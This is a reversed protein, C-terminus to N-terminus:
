PQFVVDAPSAIVLRGTAGDIRAGAVTLSLGAPLGVPNLPVRARVFGGADAIGIGLQIAAPLPVGGVAVVFLGAIDGPLAHAAAELVFRAGVSPARPFVETRDLLDNVAIQV